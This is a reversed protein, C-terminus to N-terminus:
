VRERCSARGIKDMWGDNDYDLFACGPGVTEPMYMEPSIGAVHTWSIGSKASPIGEFAPLSNAHIRAARASSKPGAHWAGSPGLASGLGSSSLLQLWRLRSIM